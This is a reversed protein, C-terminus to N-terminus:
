AFTKSQSAPLEVRIIDYFTSFTGQLMELKTKCHHTVKRRFNKPKLHNTAASPHLHNTYNTAASPHLHNTYNTAASSHLHNTHNTAASPHLYPHLNNTHNTAASPHLHNTHNTAASPHLYPHLHNTHNTAASPHLHNTHNTAAPSNFCSCRQDPPKELMANTVAASSIQHKRWCQMQFLQLASRVVVAKDGRKRRCNCINM